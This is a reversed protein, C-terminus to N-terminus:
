RLLVDCPNAAAGTPAWQGDWVFTAFTLRYGNLVQPLAVTSLDLSCTAEGDNDLFGLFGTFYPAQSSAASAIVLWDADVPIVDNLYAVTPLHGSLGVTAFYPYGARAIGGRITTTIPTPAALDLWTRDAVLRPAAPQLPLDLWTDDGHLVDVRFDHFLPAVELTHPMPLERLWLNRLRLRITSGSPIRVAIPPLRVEHLEPASPTSAAAAFAQSAVLVEDAGPGPPEVTLLAALMWEAHHPRVEVHLTASAALQLEATTTTAYVLEQLPCVALVNQVDRVAPQSLYGHPTFTTALPDITQQVISPSQPGVPAQPQMTGGNALWLRQAGVPTTLTDVHARSWLHTPDDREVQRLPLEPLVYRNELEVENTEHWLWRHLWRVVLSRRFAREAINDAVNHGITGLLARHPSPMGELRTIASLPSDVLDLYAHAYLVPVTSTALGAAIQRDEATFSALLGAPDQALFANRCTQLFAADFPMGQYSGSIAEVFWSSFLRGGRVWDETADAVFDTPAVCAITPFTITPRGPVSLPRGSWAAATWAHAGGQSSGLVAVRTADVVGAYAPLAALFQIQEALDCREIPGMLTSGANTHGPNAGVAQGQGRVDYSWVAYGQGAILLQLDLDFGRTQGLPHVHVVLPWGAGPAQAAPRILSGFTTYGDTYTVPVALDITTPHGDPPPAPRPATQAAAAVSLCSVLVARALPMRSSARFM